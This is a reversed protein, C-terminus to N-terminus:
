DFIKKSDNPANFFTYEFSLNIKEREKKQKINLLKETCYTLKKAYIQELEYQEQKHKRQRESQKQTYELEDRAGQCICCTGTVTYNDIGKALFSQIPFMTEGCYPCYEDNDIEIHQTPMLEKNTSNWMYQYGDIGRCGVYYRQFYHKIEETPIFKDARNCESCQTKNTCYNCLNAM